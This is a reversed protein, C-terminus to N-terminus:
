KKSKKVPPLPEEPVYLGTVEGDSHDCECCECSMDVLLDAFMLDQADLILVLDMVTSEFPLQRFGQHYRKEIAAIDAAITKSLGERWAGIVVDNM